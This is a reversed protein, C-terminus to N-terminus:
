TFKYGAFIGGRWNDYNYKVRNNLLDSVNNRWDRIAAQNFGSGKEAYSKIRDLKDTKNPESFTTGVIYYLMHLFFDQKPCKDDAALEIFLDVERTWSLFLDWEEHPWEKASYAWLRIEEVSPNTVDM